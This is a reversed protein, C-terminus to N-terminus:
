GDQIGGKRKEIYEVANKATLILWYGCIWLWMNRQCCLGIFVWAADILLLLALGQALKKM